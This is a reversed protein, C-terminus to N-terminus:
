EHKHKLKFARRNHLQKMEKKASQVAMDGWKKMAQNLTHTAINQVGVKAKQNVQCENLACVITTLMINMDSDHEITKDDNMRRSHASSGAASQQTMSIKDASIHLNVKLQLQTGIVYM